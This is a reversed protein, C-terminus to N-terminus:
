WGQMAVATAAGFFVIVGLVSVVGAAVAAISLRDRLKKRANELFYIAVLQSIGGITFCYAEVLRIDARFLLALKAVVADPLVVWLVIPLLALLIGAAFRAKRQVLEM